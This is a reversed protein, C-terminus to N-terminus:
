RALNQLDVGYIEANKRSLESRAPRPEGRVGLELLDLFTHWGMANQKEFRELVPLHTLTLHVQDGREELALTLYSEPYPSVVDEPGFVNWTYTLCHPPQWRTVIGRIHGSMLRVSGGAHQAILGDGYWEPLLSCDTLHSWVTEIPGSLLRQFQVCPVRSFEAKSNM